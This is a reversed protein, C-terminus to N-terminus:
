SSCPIRSQSRSMCLVFVGGKATGAWLRGLAEHGPRDELPGALVDRVDATKREFELRKQARQFPEDTGIFLAYCM